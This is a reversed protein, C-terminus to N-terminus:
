WRCVFEAYLGRQSTRGKIASRYVMQGVDNTINIAVQQNNRLLGKLFFDGNNANPYLVINGTDAADSINVTLSASDACGDLEAILKYTGGQWSQANKIEPALIFSAFSAPGSWSYNIGNEKNEIKLLLTGGKLLPSNSSIQPKLPTRKVLVDITDTAICGDLLATLVYKGSAPQGAAAIFTDAINSAFGSPGTWSYSTGPIKEKGGLLLTGGSCLTTDKLAVPTIPLPRIDATLTDTTNCGNLIATLVYSGKRNFYAPSIITDKVNATFGSPGTWSYSIGSVTDRGALRLADGFCISIDELATVPKHKV